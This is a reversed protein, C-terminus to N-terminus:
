LMEDNPLVSAVALCTCCSSICEQSGANQKLEVFVVVLFLQLHEKPACCASFREGSLRLNSWEAREGYM